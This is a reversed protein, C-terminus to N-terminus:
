LKNNDNKVNIKVKCLQSVKYKRVWLTVFCSSPSQQVAQPLKNIYSSETNPRIYETYQVWRIVNRGTDLVVHWRLWSNFMCTVTKNINDVTKNSNMKVYTSHDIILILICICDNNKKEKKDVLLPSIKETM